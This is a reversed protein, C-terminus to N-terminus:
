RLNFYKKCNVCTNMLLAVEKEKILYNSEVLNEESFMFRLTPVADYTLTGLIGYVVGLIFILITIFLIINWALHM